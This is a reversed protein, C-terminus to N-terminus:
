KKEEAIRNAGFAKLDLSGKGELSKQSLLTISPGDLLINKSDLGRSIIQNNGQLTLKNVMASFFGVGSSSTPEYNTNMLVLHNAIITVFAQPIIVKGCFIVLKATIALNDANENTQKNETLGKTLSQVDPSNTNCGFQVFDTREEIKELFSYDNQVKFTIKNEEIVAKKNNSTSASIKGSSQTYHIQSSLKPSSSDDDILAGGVTIVGPLGGDGKEAPSDSPPVEITGDVKIKGSDQLSASFHSGTCSILSFSITLIPILVSNRM